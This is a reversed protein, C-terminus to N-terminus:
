KIQILRTEINVPKKIQKEKLMMVETQKWAAIDITGIKISVSPKILTRTAKLQKKRIGDNNGKDLKKVVELTVAENATDMAAEWGKLLAYLFKEVIDPNKKLMAESTIVSNAVFDM